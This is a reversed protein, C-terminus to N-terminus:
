YSMWNTITTFLKVLFLVGAAVLIQERILDYWNSGTHTNVQIRTNMEM